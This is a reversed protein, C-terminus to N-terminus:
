REALAQAAVWSCFGVSVTAVWPAVVATGLVAQGVGGLAAVVIGAVAAAPVDPM